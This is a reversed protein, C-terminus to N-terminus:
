SPSYPHIQKRPNGKHKRNSTPTPMSKASHFNSIETPAEIQIQPRNVSQPISDSCNPLGDDDIFWRMKLSPHPFRLNVFQEFATIAFTIFGIDESSSDGFFLFPLFRKRCSV